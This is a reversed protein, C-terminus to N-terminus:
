VVWLLSIVVIWLGLFEIVWFLWFKNKVLILDLVFWVIRLFVRIIDGEDVGVCCFFFVYSFGGFVGDGWFYLMDIGSM